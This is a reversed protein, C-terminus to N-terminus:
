EGSSMSGTHVVVAKLQYKTYQEQHDAKRSIIKTRGSKSPKGSPALFPQLDLDLPFSTYDDIKKLSNFSASGTLFSSRSTQQFRNFHVFLVSPLTEILYRKRARRTIYQESKPVISQLTKSAFKVAPSHPRSPAHSSALRRSDDSM